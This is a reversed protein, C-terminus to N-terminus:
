QPGYTYNKSVEPASTTERSQRASRDPIGPGAGSSPAAYSGPAVPMSSVQGSYTASGSYTFSEAPAPSYKIGLDKREDRVKVGTLRVTYGERSFTHRAAYILYDGSKNVDRAPVQSTEDIVLFDIKFKNGISTSQNGIIFIRGPLTFDMPTNLIWHRMSKSDVKFLQETGDRAENYGRYGPYMGSSFAGAITNSEVREHLYIPEETGKPPLKSLMPYVDEAYVGNGFANGQEIRRGAMDYATWRRKNVSGPAPRYGAYMSLNRAIDHFIYATNVYGQNNMKTLDDTATETYSEIIFAQEDISRPVTHSTSAQSYVLPRPSTNSNIANSILMRRLSLLHLKDNAFTSFLYYPSADSTTIRDKIWDAAQLPSMNPIVVRMPPQIDQDETSTSPKSLEKGFFEKVIKEIINYGKGDYGKNVNIYDSIFGIDEMIHLVLTSDYDNSRINRVVKDIYFIKVISRYRAEPLRISITLKEIGSLKLKSYLNVSDAVVVTGTIYPKDLHEYIDIDSIINTIDLSAGDKLNHSELVAYELVFDKASNSVTKNLM